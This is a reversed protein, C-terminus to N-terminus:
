FFSFDIILRERSGDPKEIFFKDDTSVAGILLKAIQVAYVVTQTRNRSGIKQQIFDISDLTKEPLSMNVPQTQM